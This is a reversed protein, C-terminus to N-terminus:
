ELAGCKTAPKLVCIKNQRTSGGGSPNPTGVLSHDLEIAYMQVWICVRPQLVDAHMCEGVCARVYM